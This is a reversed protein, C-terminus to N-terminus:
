APAKKSKGSKEKQTKRKKKQSREMLWKAVTPALSRQTKSSVYMGIHGVPYALETYDKTGVYKKLPRSCSPPVLHDQEGFINLVPMTINKLDVRRKGLYFEGKVLKNEKYLEKVFKRFCEGAQDPSDFIWKEMRLFNRVVNEDDINDLLGVYKDLILQFPKLWLFGLNMFDGPINGFVEVMLDVDMAQAWVNLLGDRTHFDIPAVMLILNKIKEPFLSAYIASFTGGQCVGLLNIKPNKTSRRVYDVCNNLYGYLYDEMTLYKDVKTPYGWDIVYLEIGEGLLNRFLSRDEQLDMMYQRNVLAYVVLLPIPCKVQEPKYRFLQVKDEKYVLEKPTPAVEIDKVEMLNQLGKLLKEQFLAMEKFFSALNKEYNESM